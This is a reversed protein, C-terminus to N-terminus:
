ARELIHAKKYEAAEAPYMLEFLTEIAFSLADRTQMDLAGPAALYTILRVVQPDSIAELLKLREAALQSPTMRAIRRVRRGRPKAEGNVRSRSVRRRPVSTSASMKKRQNM